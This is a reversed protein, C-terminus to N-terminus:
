DTLQTAEDISMAIKAATMAGSDFTLDASIESMLARYRSHAAFDRERSVGRPHDAQAPEWTVPLPATPSALNSSAVGQGWIPGRRNDLTFWHERIDM